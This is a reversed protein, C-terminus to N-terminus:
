KLTARLFLLLRIGNFIKLKLTIKFTVTKHKPKNVLRSTIHHIIDTMDTQRDTM